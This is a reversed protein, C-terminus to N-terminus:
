HKGKGHKSHSKKHGFLVALLSLAFGAAIVLTRFDNIVKWYENDIGDILWSVGTASPLTVWLMVALLVVVISNLVLASGKTTGRFVLGSFVISLIVVALRIYAEGEGPVVSGATTVVVPDLSDLLVIGACAALFMIGGNSKFFFLMFLPLGLFLILPLAIDM